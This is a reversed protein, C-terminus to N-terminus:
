LNTSITLTGGVLCHPTPSTCKGASHHATTSKLLLTHERIERVLSLWGMQLMGNMSAFSIVCQLMKEHNVEQRVCEFVKGCKGRM